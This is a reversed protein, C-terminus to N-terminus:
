KWGWLVLNLGPRESTVFVLVSQSTELVLEESVRVEKSIYVKLSVVWLQRCLLQFMPPM